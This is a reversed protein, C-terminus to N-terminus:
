VNWNKHLSTNKKGKNEINSQIQVNCVGIPFVSPLVIITGVVIAHAEVAGLADEIGSYDKDKRRSGRFPPVKMYSLYM